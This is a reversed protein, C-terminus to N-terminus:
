SGIGKAEGSAPPTLPEIVVAPIQLPKVRGESDLELPTEPPVEINGSEIAQLMARMAAIEGPPILVNSDRPAVATPEAIRAPPAPPSPPGFSATLPPQQAILRVAPRSDGTKRPWLLSVGVIALVAAAFAAMRLQLFWPRPQPARRVRRRVGSIFEASPEIDLSTKLENLADDVRDTTM